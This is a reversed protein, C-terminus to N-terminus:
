KKNKNLFYKIEKVIKIQLNKKLNYYIPISLTNNFYYESNKYYVNNKKFIKFKYIPIYHFQSFILKKKLFLLLKDKTSKIKEFNISILCLHYAAKNDTNYNNFTVIDNFKKFQKQYYLFVKERFNIFKKVKKLQGLGLACNIDSLRYNLGNAIVNYKWHQNRKLIGHSRLLLIRKKLNINNTTILGGEGTTITKVPHFSFTAIDSHRCSGIYLIKKKSKYKAGFAHCADEILYCKYRKKIKYFEEINEPYGGLYMTIIAKINKLNNEKICHILTSPSMQGTFKDVDAIFIKAGILQCINYAAIFNIAPMIVIDNKKLNISLFALHLAATGSSCSISYKCNLFQATKKEFEKVYTGTTILKSKLSKTVLKIDEKDIFQRGYPINEM